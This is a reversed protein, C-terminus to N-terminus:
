KYRKQSCFYRKARRLLLIRFGNKYCCIGGQWNRAFINWIRLMLGQQQRMFNKNKRPLEKYSFKPNKTTPSNKTKATTINTYFARFCCLNQRSIKAVQFWNLNKKCFFIKRGLNRRHNFFLNKMKSVRLHKPFPHPVISLSLFPLRKSSNKSRM